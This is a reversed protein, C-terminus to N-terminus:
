EDTLNQMKDLAEEARFAIQEDSLSLFDRHYHLPLTINSYATQNSLLGGEQFVFGVRLGRAVRQSPLLQALPYGAQLVSGRDPALLGAALYLLTSKGVGTPGTILASAGFPVEWSLSDILAQDEYGFQLRDLTLGPKQRDIILENSM